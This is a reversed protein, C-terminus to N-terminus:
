TPRSTSCITRSRTSVPMPSTRSVLRLSTSALACSLASSRTMSASTPAPALSDVRSDKRRLNRLSSSLSLSISISTASAGDMGDKSMGPMGPLWTPMILRESISPLASPWRVLDRVTVTSSLKSMRIASSDSLNISSSMITCSAMRLTSFLPMTNRSSISLIQARESRTPASTDRSPTCRSRKGRMSPVVTPVLCPGTLVSWM